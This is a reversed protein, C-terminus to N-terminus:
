CLSRGSASDDLNRDEDGTGDPAGDPRPNAPGYAQCQGGGLHKARYMAEDACALLREATTAHMPYGAIGVSAPALVARGDFEFPQAFSSVIARGINACAQHGNLSTLLLTFEDGGLRAVTDTERVCARLRQSAEILVLDGQEHGYTDNIEKFRDLDLYVLAM